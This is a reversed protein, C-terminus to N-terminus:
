ESWETNIMLFFRRLFQVLFFLNHCQFFFFYFHICWVLLNLYTSRVCVHLHIRTSNNSVIPSSSPPPLAVQVPGQPFLSPFHSTTPCDRVACHYTWHALFYWIDNDNDFGLGFRFSGREWEPLPLGRRLSRLRYNHPGSIFSCNLPGGTWQKDSASDKEERM